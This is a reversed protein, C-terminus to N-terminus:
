KNKLYSELLDKMVRKDHETVEKGDFSMITGLAEDVSMNHVQEAKSQRGLLYDASTNLINALEDLEHSSVKRTGNEIKSMVSKDIGLKKALEVHSMNRKERLDIIRTPLDNDKM